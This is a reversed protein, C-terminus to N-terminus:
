KLINHKLKITEEEVEVVQHHDLHLVLHDQRLGELYILRGTTVVLHDQEQLLVEVETLHHHGQTILAELLLQDLGQITLVVVDQLIVVLIETIELLREETIHLHELNHAVTVCM